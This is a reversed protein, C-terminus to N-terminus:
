HSIHSAANDQQFIPGPIDLNDPDHPRQLSVERMYPILLLELVKYKYRMYDIGGKNKERSMILPHNKVFNEFLTLRKPKRKGLAAWKAIDEAVKIDWEAQIAPMQLNNHANIIGAYRKTQTATEKLYVYCPGKFDYSFVGWFM